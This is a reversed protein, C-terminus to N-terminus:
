SESLYKCAVSEEGIPTDADGDSQIFYFIKEGPKVLGLRERVLSEMIEGSKVKEYRTNLAHNEELVREYERELEAVAIEACYVDNLSSCFVVLSYVLLAVAALHFLSFRINMLEEKRLADCM